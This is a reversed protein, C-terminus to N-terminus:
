TAGEVFVNSYWGTKTAPPTDGTTRAFVIGNAMPAATITSTQTQPEKTNTNTTSGVGPRTGTCAYMVYHQQDADGDIEFLLAFTAPEVDAHETLVKSTEGQTYGWVDMLMQPPFLAMELDGQYGDNAQSQYYVIGDAYFKTLEGQASLSLSVAGPVAVPTAFTLAGDAETAVAYHMNKLNFRVKNEAM